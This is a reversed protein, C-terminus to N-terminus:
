RGKKEHDPPEYVVDDAARPLAAAATTNGRELAAQGARGVGINSREAAPVFVRHGSASVLRKAIAIAEDQSLDTRQDGVRLRVLGNTLTQVNVESSFSGGGADDARFAAGTSVARSRPYLTGWDKM